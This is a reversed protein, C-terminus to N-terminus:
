SFGHLLACSGAFGSCSNASQRSASSAIRCFRRSAVASMADRPKQHLRRNIVGRSFTSPSLILGLMFIWRSAIRSDRIELVFQRAPLPLFLGRVSSSLHLRVNPTKVNQVGVHRLHLLILLIEWPMSRSSRVAVAQQQFIFEDLFAGACRCHQAGHLSNAFCGLTAFFRALENRQFLNQPLHVKALQAVSRLATDRHLGVDGLV